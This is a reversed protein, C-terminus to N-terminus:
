LPEGRALRPLSGATGMARHMFFRKLRPTRNVAALGLDRVLRVAALDIGFLRNLGDTAAVLAAVDGTRRRGYAELGETGGPDLGLRVRDVLIEALLAVGRLGLNLGQGAIPHIATAADGVLALRQATFSTAISLALPYSWRRGLWEVRGLFTGFRRELEAAFDTEGLALLREVMRERETWVISSRHRGDADTMPLIAFPGATLFREHAVNRHPKEHAVTGVIASQGYRWGVTRIGAEARVASDRGDAGVALAARIRRGDALEAEVRHPGRELRAVIAPALLTIRPAADVAEYLARRILRNEIISGLPEDGADRHDYHLFLPSAGDTVRIDLIPCADPELREWLGVGALVRRSGAAIATTRGDHAPEMVADRAARDIM